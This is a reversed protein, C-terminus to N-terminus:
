WGDETGLWMTRQENGDGSILDDMSEKLDFGKHVTDGLIGIRRNETQQPDEADSSDYGSQYQQNDSSSGDVGEVSEVSGLSSGDPSM